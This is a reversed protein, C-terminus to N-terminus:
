SKVQVLLPLERAFDNIDAWPDGTTELLSPVSSYNLDEPADISELNTWSLPTSVPMHARNRLSFPAVATASRANRHFDIFIRKKRNEKGMVTTFTDPATAAIKSSIEGAAQHFQKWGLKGATPAVVHVGRGGSTKVFPELGLLRLEARVHIAAEVVERWNIGEGPDLDFVMRDPRDLHKSLVGWVHFEVVGFQALALYGKVDEVSIYTQTEDESNKTEFSAITPPMGPFPHRQFFCDQARGTPCRVLSVPRGLIHPLMFDGVAAYYVAIDLKTPGSKGFLRRTPNTVWIAALDADLILRKRRSSGSASLEAERLGKFVAHRLAKDATLNAYHIRATLVPRVPIIDRPMRDLREAGTRLPELRALLRPLTQADFGTGVKGRYHLEGDVWEALALAALGEAAQSTTYGAIVFDGSSLAKIKSWTASRGSTYPASARKSVIGELGMEAARDYLPKGDGAIHGSIQLSSRATVQGALLDSLLQKRKDLPAGTLDWGDLYLLDFAFFTLRHSEGKALADQLLAFRSVGQEDLVVIEGDIVAQRCPLKAFAAALDRYRKTWDLGSRTIFTASGQAVHAMTRYGDFKIEHLWDDGSPPKAVSTALQPEVRAPMRAKVAGPLRGPRLVKPKAPLDPAALEEIRLGSKVSEPREALIDLEASAFPDREKFLLWNRKEEGPKSKLRALMWGGKLKEGSLRFKFAGKKLSTEVDEMPAWVGADWVIMPGGGYEGKPIVGEFDIYEIPHDETEVALRKDEPNLSPGKPVAWSKLVGGTELRLDYHDATAHHKHVVFRNGSDPAVTGTPEATRAFDRKKRYPELRQTPM